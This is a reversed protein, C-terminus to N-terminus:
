CMATENEGVTWTASVAHSGLIEWFDEWAQRHNTAILIADDDIFEEKNWLKFMEDVNPYLSRLHNEVETAFKEMESDSLNTMDIPYDFCDKFMERNIGSAGFKKTMFNKDM